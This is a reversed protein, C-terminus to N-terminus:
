GLFYPPVLRLMRILVLLLIHLPYAAYFLLGLATSRLGRRGNYLLILEAAPLAFLSTMVWSHAVGSFFMSAAYVFYLLVVGLAALRRNERCAYFWLCLTVGLWGYSVRLAMAAACSFMIGAMQRLPQGEFLRFLWLAGLCLLLSFVANQETPSVPVAFILLDFPIESVAACVLLRRGYARLDRTHLFGETLLFCFLPFSLRGICRFVQINPFLALGMHDMLM